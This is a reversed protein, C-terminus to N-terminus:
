QSTTGTTKRRKPKPTEEHTTTSSSSSSSSSSPEPSSRKNTVGVPKFHVKGLLHPFNLKAKSGRIDFAAKDYALAAGEPTDYTGLWVRAGNKKPDRIEAAYKGWPRTRVGRYHAVKPKAAATHNPTDHTTETPKIPDFSIWGVNVADHINPKHALQDYSNTNSVPSPVFDDLSKDTVLFSSFSSTPSSCLTLPGINSRNTQLPLSTLIDFDNDFLNQLVDFDWESFNNNQLPFKTSIDGLEFEDDLLHHRVSELLASDSESINERFM